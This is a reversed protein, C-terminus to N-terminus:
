GRRSGATSRHMATFMPRRESITRSSCNMIIGCDSGATAKRLCNTNWSCDSTWFHDRSVLLGARPTLNKLIGGNLGWDGIRGAPLTAMGALGQRLLDAPRGERWSGDDRDTIDPSRWGAWRYVKGDIETSGEIAEGNMRAHTLARTLRPPTGGFTREVTFRLEGGILQADRIKALRGGTAGFFSGSLPMDKGIELWFVKAGSAKDSQIAWRGAFPNAGYLTAAVFLPLWGSRMTESSIM